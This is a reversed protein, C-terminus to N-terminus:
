CVGFYNRVTKASVTPIISDFMANKSDLVKQIYSEITDKAVLNIITVPKTQGRRHIRDAAQDNLKPTWLLDLFVAITGATLTISQGGSQTTTLFLQTNPDTQFKTIAAKREVDTTEGYLITATKGYKAYLRTIARSFQSFVVIKQDTGAIIDDLVDFKAGTLETSKVDLMDPSVAIQKLRIGLALTNIADVIEGNKLMTYMEQKMQDYVKRQPPLLDVTIDQYTKEPMDEWVDEKMRRLILPGVDAKLQQPRAIGIIEIARKNYWAPKTTCYKDVWGWFSSYQKPDIMHLLPWLEEPRNLVPTASVCFIYKFPVAHRLRKASKFTKTKRNKLKHAEDFIIVDWPQKCMADLVYNPTGRGIFMSYSIITIRTPYQAKAVRDDGDVITYDWGLWKEIEGPNNEDANAWVSIATKPCIILTRRANVQQLADLAMKTKGLGMDDALICRQKDVLFKTGTIQYQYPKTM